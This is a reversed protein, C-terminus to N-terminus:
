MIADPGPPESVQCQHLLAHQFARRVAKRDTPKRPETVKAQDRQSDEGLLELKDPPLWQWTRKADFFLVLYVPKQHNKELALVDQPPAPIPVGRHVYGRPMDPSIILAPYWPYGRCKAWVLQLPKFEASQKTTKDSKVGSTENDTSASHETESLTSDSCSLYSDYCTSCSQGSDSDDDDSGQNVGRYVRFSDPITTLKEASGPGQGDVRRPRGVRRRQKGTTEVKPPSSPKKLAAQAKRTFLVATRRNVGGTPSASNNNNNTVISNNPTNKEAVPTVVESSSQSTDSITSIHRKARVIEAKILRVRKARSGAHKLGQCKKLLEELKTILKADKTNNKLEELEKEIEQSITSDDEKRKDNSKESKQEPEPLLGSEKFEKRAQAFLANGADRMKIGAKYFVTDKNNYALCNSIMLQFDKEMLDLNTYAGEDLKERMTSLDMPNTVVTSYDPVEVPDVPELFIERDDKAAIMDLLRRMSAELPRLEVIMCREKQKVLELKLKERKRVLECLLRARELDQRLCQWYKLQRCLEITDVQSQSIGSSDRNNGQASSQLRRLLPVGNRFQRKLTWYAILRQIFQNKKSLSVLSSIEQIREPPITPILIVPASTRKKALVKRAQKMKQRFDERGSEAPTHSDCFATKQVLVPPQTDTANDNRVTDMKMFLGAQQACTVHFAAYCNTKHCQICAGVGRQKCVYCTLKWRAPPITEISDIPELFVTNAFRVEPIWLACVVHAWQGRDTQKFAGGHNPCLVCDVARSPSQLCRRCLWQGEPIYPVGYCDQHVALNCMDCFLIVNTNQCEGDMCICCVADDDVVAGSSQGNASAQFYSEKELRDMLLELTDVSVPNTGQSERKENMISLWATDEEDVDYEVEGDLEEASKEIFRIYANPRPPADCINYDPLEKYSPEPLKALAEQTAQDAQLTPTPGEWDESSILPLEDTINVRIAKTDVEFQVMKQAEAYTLAERIPSVLDATPVAPRARGKKHRPTVPSLTQSQPNDHDFNQLHYQLGCTSRYTRECKEIPCQYPPQRDLRLKKCFEAVDFDVLGM